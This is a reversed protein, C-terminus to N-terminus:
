QQLTMTVITDLLFLSALAFLGVQWWFLKWTRTDSENTSDRLDQIGKRQRTERKRAVQATHRFSLLRNIALICGVFLSAFGVVASFMILCIASPPIIKGGIFYQTEFILFGSALTILLNNIFSLQEISKEQWRVFSLNNQESM